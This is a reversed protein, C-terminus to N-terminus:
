VASGAGPGADEVKRGLDEASDASILEGGRPALAWYSRTHEGRWFTHGPFAARLGDLGDGPAAALVAVEVCNGSPNSHSSKQWGGTV